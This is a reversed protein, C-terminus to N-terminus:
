ETPYNLKKETALALKRFKVELWYEPMDNQRATVAHVYELAASCQQKKKIIIEWKMEDCTM